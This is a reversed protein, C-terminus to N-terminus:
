KVQPPYTFIGEGSMKNDKWDGIYTEKTIMWTMKGKGEYEDDEFEGEYYTEPTLM